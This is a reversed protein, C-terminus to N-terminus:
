AASVKFQDYVFLSGQVRENVNFQVSRQRHGRHLGQVSGTEAIHEPMMACMPAAGHCLADPLLSFPQKLRFM